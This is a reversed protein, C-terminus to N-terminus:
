TIKKLCFVAYSLVLHSSNLRTSKRDGNFVTTFRGAPDTMPQRGNAPDIVSLRTHGLHCGPLRLTQQADPGRHRLAAAMRDIAFPSVSLDSNPLIVAIGCM